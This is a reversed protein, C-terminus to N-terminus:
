MRKISKFVFYGKEKAEVSVNGYVEELKKKMSEAGQKKQIVVYIEGDNNLHKHGDIVVGLVVQKGARIPPNSVIIDYQESVNEYLNSFMVNVELSNDEANKKSLQVCRENVDIMTVNLKNYAKKLSLGICGVGCGVDLLSKKNALDPLSQLLVHTGFDLRDKSFVGLDSTFNIRKGKFDYSFKRYENGLNKDNIYYHSM